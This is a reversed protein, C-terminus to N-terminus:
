DPPTSRKLHMWMGGGQSPVLTSSVKPLVITTQYGGLALWNALILESPTPIREAASAITVPKGPEVVVPHANGVAGEIRARRTGDPSFVYRRAGGLQAPQDFLRKSLLWVDLSDDTTRTVFEMYSDIVGDPLPHEILDHLVARVALAESLLAATDLPATYRARARFDIGVVRSVGRGDDDLALTVGVWVGGVRVCHHSEGLSERPGVTGRAILSGMASICRVTQLVAGAQRDALDFDANFAPDPQAILPVASLACAALYAARRLLRRRM